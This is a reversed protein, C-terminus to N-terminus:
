TTSTSATASSFGAPNRRARQPLVCTPNPQPPCQQRGDASAFRQANLLRSNREFFKSRLPAPFSPRLSTQTGFLPVHVAFLCQFAAQTGSNPVCIAGPAPNRWLPPPPHPRCIDLVPTPLRSLGIQASRPQCYARCLGPVLTDRRSKPPFSICLALPASHASPCNGPLSADM